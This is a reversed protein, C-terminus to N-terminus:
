RDLEIVVARLIRALRQRDSESLGAVADRAVAFRETVARDIVGLGRRTLVVRVSRRDDPDSERRVLGAHELRDLRNTMAGSTILSARSLEGPSLRYPKGARRLTSLVDYSWPTLGHTALAAHTRQGLLEAAVILRGAIEFGSADLDPRERGWLEVALDIRDLESTM